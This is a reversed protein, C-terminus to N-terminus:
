KMLLMRRSQSGNPIGLRYLYVGSAVNRNNMDRGNWAIQHLGAEQGTNILTKVLQGRINYIDIRVKAAEPLYYSITTTPNFPNPYNQFLTLQKLGPAVPDDNSVWPRSGFEFCGMDIRDNWIRYNGALDYPPLNLGTIDRTGADICPSGESLSYYLPDHMDFGGAFLPDGSINTDHYHITSGPGQWIDSYGNRILNNNLTLTTPIGTGDMPNIAIEVSRNNYFISNSITVNGNVMLAEGNGTHGAFTCNTINMLPFDEGHFIVGRENCYINAFLSNQITYQPQTPPNYMGSFQVAHTDDDTMTINTITSNILAFSGGLNIWILPSAWVENSTFTSTANRFISNRIVGSIYGDSYLFGMSDTTFDEIIIGDWLCNTAYTINIIAFLDPNLEHMRLNKLHLSEEKFGWIACSNNSGATTISMDELCVHSQYFSTFVKLANYPVNAYAPDMEGVIQTEEIGAGQVKIWSKLPIPFVQQNATRSYIGPLIHVTKQNLSDSAVRYVATRITKLATAPSLGDNTDDGNSSVYLDSNIEQHHATEVDILLQFENGYARFPAVYYNTPNSVTFMELPISLDDNISHAVIDQGAGATNNYISCRNVPDFAVNVYGMYGNIYIGGAMIYAYNDFIRVGSLVTTSKFLNIGGGYSSANGFLSCNTLMSLSNQGLSIGIRSNTISFGRITVNQVNQNIRIGPAILSGDIITSEIYSPDNSAYELSVVAINSVSINVNEWYRGPYVLVTDGQSSESVATQISTYQGAGTIDVTRTVANIGIGIMCLLWAIIWRHRKM